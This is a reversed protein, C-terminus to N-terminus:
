FLSYIKHGLWSALGLCMPYLVVLWIGDLISMTKLTYIGNTNLEKILDYWTKLGLKYALGNVLIAILLICLGIIYYRIM